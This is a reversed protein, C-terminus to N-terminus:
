AGPAAYTLAGTGSLEFSETQIGRRQGGHTATTMIASGGYTGAGTTLAVTVLPDSIAKATAFAETDIEGQASLSWSKGAVIQALWTDNLCSVDVVENNITLTFQNTSCVVSDEDLTFVTLSAMPVKAM